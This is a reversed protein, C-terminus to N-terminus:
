PHTAEFLELAAEGMRPGFGMLKLDEIQIIKDEANVRTLSVGPTNLIASAGGVSELGHSMMLVYDPDLDAFVEASYPKYGEFDQARNECGALKIMYEATTGRGGLMLTGGGRGYLFVLGPKGQDTRGLDRVHELDRHLNEVLESAREVRGLLDGIALISEAASEEDTAKPLEYLEVGLEELQSLATEPGSESTHIVLTPTLSMVGEASFARHYGVKPLEHAEAPYSSSTDAGVVWDGRGLAYVIETISGGLCLVREEQEAQGSARLEESSGCSCLCLCLSAICNFLASPTLLRSM